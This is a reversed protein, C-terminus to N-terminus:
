KRTILNPKNKDTKKFYIRLNNIKSRKEERIHMNLAIVKEAAIESCEVFKPLYYIWKTWFIKLKEQSKSRHTIWFHTTLNGFIQLNQASKGKSIELKIDNHGESM